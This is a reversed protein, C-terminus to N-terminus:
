CAYNYEYLYQANNLLSNLIGEDRYYRLDKQNVSIRHYRVDLLSVSYAEINSYGCRFAYETLASIKNYKVVCWRLEGKCRWVILGCLTTIDETRRQRKKIGEAVGCDGIDSCRKINWGYQRLYNCWSKFTEGHNVNRYKEWQYQHIMEHLFTTQFEKESRDYYISIRLRNARGRYQGLLRSTNTVIEFTPTSLEGNFYVSNFHRHWEKCIEKTLEFKRM